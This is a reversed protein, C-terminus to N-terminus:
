RKSAQRDAPSAAAPNKDEQTTAGFGKAIQSRKAARDAPHAVANQMDNNNRKKRRDQAFLSRNSRAFGAPALGLMKIHHCYHQVKAAARCSGM